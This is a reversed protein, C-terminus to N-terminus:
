GGSEDFEDNEAMVDGNLPDGWERCGNGDCNGDARKEELEGPDNDCDRGEPDSSSPGCESVIKPFPPSTSLVLVHRQSNHCDCVTSDHEQMFYDNSGRKM